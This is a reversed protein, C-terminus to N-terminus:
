SDFQFKPINIASLVVMGFITNISWGISLPFDLTATAPINLEVSAFRVTPTPIVPVMLSIYINPPFMNSKVISRKTVTITRTATDL